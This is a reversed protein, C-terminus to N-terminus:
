GFYQTLKTIEGFESNNLTEDARLAVLSRRVVTVAYKMDNTGSMGESFTFTNATKQGKTTERIFFYSQSARM